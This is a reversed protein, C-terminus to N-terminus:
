RIDDKVWNNNTDEKCDRIMESFFRLNDCLSFDNELVQYLDQLHEFLAYSPIREKPNYQMMALITNQM